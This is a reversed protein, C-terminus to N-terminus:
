GGPAGVGGADSLAGGGGDRAAPVLHQRGLGRDDTGLRGSRAHVAPGTSAAACRRRRRGSQSQGKGDRPRPRSRRVLRLSLALPNRACPASTRWCCAWTASIWTATTTSTVTAPCPAARRASTRWCYAST